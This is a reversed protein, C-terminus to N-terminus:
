RLSDIIQQVDAVTTAPNVFCFRLLTEGDWSTPATLTLGDELAKGSWAEYDCSQWGNRRFVVVSLEPEFILELHPAADIM